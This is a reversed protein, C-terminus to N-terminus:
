TMTLKMTEEQQEDKKKEKYRVSFLVISMESAHNSVKKLKRSTCM